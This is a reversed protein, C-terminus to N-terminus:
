SVCQGIVGTEKLQGQSEDSPVCGTASKSSIVSDRELEGRPDGLGEGTCDGEECGSNKIDVVGVTSLCDSGM